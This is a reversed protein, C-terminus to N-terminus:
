KNLYGRDEVQHIFMEEFDMPMEELVAPQTRRLAEEMEVSKGKLIVKVFKGNPEVYVTPLGEFWSKEVPLTYALQFKCYQGRDQSLDGSHTVTKRDILAYSDCFDELERLSHSSILVGTGNEDALRNLESKVTLRALPDLGDFAEDLLLYKPGAAIAIAIFLRRRMGKSFTRIPKNDPLEWTGLLRGYTEKDLEPYFTKYLELLSKGTSRLTYYPDDPLFFLNRRGEEKSTLRGDSFIQGEDPQYVGSILRLLTSKGAGNIGVLGVISGEEVTLNVKELVTKGGLRHSVNKVEIM